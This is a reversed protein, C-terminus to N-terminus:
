SEQLMIIAAFRGTVGEEARFSFFLETLCSTCLASTTINKEPVDMEIIAQKNAQWLDLKYKDGYPVAINEFGAVTFLDAVEGAVEYCCPGASPGIAALINEPECGYDEVMVKLTEGCIKDLTGRWGAHTAAIVRRKPDYFLVPVCDAVLCWLLIGPQDTVLADAEYVSDDYVRAGLGKDGSTIKQVHVGHVQRMTVCDDLDAGFLAVVKARNSIVDEPNDGVHLALNLSTYKEKSAGGLRTTFAHMMGNHGSLNPALLYPINDKHLISFGM